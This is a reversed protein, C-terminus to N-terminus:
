SLSWKMTTRRSIRYLERKIYLNQCQTTLQKSTPFHKEREKIIINDNKDKERTTYNIKM